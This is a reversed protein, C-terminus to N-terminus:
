FLVTAVFTVPSGKTGDMSATARQVGVRNGLTWVVSATGDMATPTTEASVGGNGQSVDWGVEAGAVPNGFRDVAIVVLPEDLPEGRRGAQVSPGVARLTDPASAGATAQLSAPPLVSDGGAVLRAEATYVGAATGLRWQTLARGQADTIATDPDFAGAAAGQIPVFAVQRNAVPQGADTKVEVVVPAPLAEGVTGVQDDGEVVAV